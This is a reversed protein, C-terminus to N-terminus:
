EVYNIVYTGHATAVDSTSTKDGNVADKINDWKEKTEDLTNKLGKNGLSVGAAIVGISLLAGLIGLGIKAWISKKKM